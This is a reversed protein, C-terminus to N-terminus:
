QEPDQKDGSIDVSGFDEIEITGEFTDEGFELDFEMNVTFGDQDLSYLFTVQKGDVQVNEITDPDGPEDDSVITVSYAGDDEEIILKGTQQDGMIELAYSWTGILDLGEAPTGKKNSPKVPAVHHQGAVWTHKIAWKDSWLPEDTLILNAMKGKEVTGTVKALGLIDAPVTTMAALATKHSLGADILKKVVEHVKTSKTELYSFAFPIGATELTQAQTLSQQYAEVKRTHWAVLEADTSDIDEAEEPLDLSLLVTSGSAKVKDIVRWVEKTEALVLDFGLDDKLRLIRYIDKVGDARYYLAQEGRTVPILAQLVEDHNPAAMGSPDQGYKESYADALEANRYLERMKSMVAIVTSPYVRGSAGRLRAYQAFEANLLRQRSADVVQTTIISTEGSLMRGDAAVHAIAFGAGRLDSVVKSSGLREAVQHHPTIGAQEYTPNGPNKVDQREKDEEKALGEHTLTAVFAAYLHMSDSEIIRADYPPQLVPAIQDILGDRIIVDQVSPDTGPRTHVVVDSLYYTRGISSPENSNQGYSSTLSCCM